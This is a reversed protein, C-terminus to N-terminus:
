VSCMTAWGRPAAGWLAGRLRAPPPLPLPLDSHRPGMDRDMLWGCAGEDRGGPSRRGSVLPRSPAPVGRATVRAAAGPLPLAAPVQNRNRCSSVSASPPCNSVWSVGSHAPRDAALHQGNCLRPDGSSNAAEAPFVCPGAPRPPPSPHPAAWWWTADPSPADPGAPTAWAGRCQGPRSHARLFPRLSGPARQSAATILSSHGQLHDWM